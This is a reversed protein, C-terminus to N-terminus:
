PNDVPDYIKSHYSLGGGGRITFFYKEGCSIIPEAFVAIFFTYGLVKPNQFNFYAAEVGSIWYANFVKWDRYSTHFSCRSIEIGYPKTHSVDRISESHPIIFGYHSQFGAYIHPITDAKSIIVSQNLLFFIVVALKCKM